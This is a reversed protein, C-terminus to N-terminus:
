PCNRCPRHGNAPVALLVGSRVVAAASSSLPLAALRNCDSFPPRVQARVLSGSILARSFSPSSSRQKAKKSRFCRGEDYAVRELRGREAGKPSAGQDGSPCPLARRSVDRFTSGGVCVAGSMGAPRSGAKAAFLHRPTHFAALQPARGAGEARAGTHPLLPVTYAHWVVNPAQKMRV